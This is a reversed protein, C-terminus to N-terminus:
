SDIAGPTLTPDPLDGAWATLPLVLAAVLVTSKM